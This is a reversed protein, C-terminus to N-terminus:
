VDLVCRSFLPCLDLAWLLPPMFRHGYMAVMVSGMFRSWTSCPQQHRAGDCDPGYISIMGPIRSYPATDRKNKRIVGLGLTSHYLLRHAKCVLGGRFRKVNYPATESLRILRSNDLQRNQHQLVFRDVKSAISILCYRDDRPFPPRFKM